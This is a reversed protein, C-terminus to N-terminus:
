EYTHMTRPVTRRRQVQRATGFVPATRPYRSGTELLLLFLCLLFLLLERHRYNLLVTRSKLQRITTIYYVDGEEDVRTCAHARTERKLARKRLKLRFIWSPM